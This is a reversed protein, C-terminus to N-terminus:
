AHLRERTPVCTQLVAHAADALRLGPYVPAVLDLLAADYAPDGFMSQGWDFVGGVSQGRIHVDDLARFAGVRVRVADVTAL